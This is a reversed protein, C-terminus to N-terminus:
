SPLNVGALVQIRAHGHDLLRPQFAYRRVHRDARDGMAPTAPKQAKWPRPAGSRWADDAGICVASVCQQPGVVHEVAAILGPAMNGHTVLVIGIKGARSQM